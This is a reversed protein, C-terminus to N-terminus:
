NSSINLECDEAITIFLQVGQESCEEVLAAYNTSDFCEGNDVLIAAIEGIRVAAVKVAFRMVEATSLRTVPIGTVHLVGDEITVGEIPMTSFLEDRYTELESIIRNCEAEANRATALETENFKITEATQRHVEANKLHERLVTIKETIPALKEGSIRMMDEVTQFHTREISALESARWTNLEALKRDYSDQLDKRQADAIARYEQRRQQRKQDVEASKAELQALEAAFTEIGGAIGSPVTKRLQEVHTEKDKATKTYGRRDLKQTDILEAFLKVAHQETNVNSLTNAINALRDADAYIPAAELFLETQRSPSAKIFEMPDLSFGDFRGKLNTAPSSIPRGDEDTVTLPKSKAGLKRTISAGSKLILGTMGETEGKRLLTGEDGGGIAYKIADLIASKGAGNHGRIVNIQGFEFIAEEMSLFNKVRLVQIRDTKNLTIM